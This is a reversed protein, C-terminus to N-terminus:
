ETGCDDDDTVEVGVPQLLCLGEAALRDVDTGVGGQFVLDGVDEVGVLDVTGDVGDPELRSPVAVVGTLL